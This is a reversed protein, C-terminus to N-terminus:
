GAGVAAGFEIVNLTLHAAFPAALGGRWLALGAFAGGAVVGTLAMYWVGGTWHLLGFAICSLVAGGVPGYRGRLRNLLIGRYVTEEVVPALMVNAVLFLVLSGAVTEAVAGPPVFDGLNVQLWVMGPGLITLYAVAIVAGVVAGLAWDGVRGRAAWFQRVPLLWLALVGLAALVGVLLASGQAAVRAGIEEAPVGAVGMAVSVIVIALLFLVPGALLM